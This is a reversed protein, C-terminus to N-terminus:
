QVGYDGKINSGVAHITASDLELEPQYVLEIEKSYQALIKKLSQLRTWSDNLTKFPEGASSPAVSIIINLQQSEPLSKFFLDIIQKHQGNAQLEQQTFNISLQRRYINKSIPLSEEAQNMRSIAESIQQASQEQEREMITKFNLNSNCGSILLTSVFMAVVLTHLGYRKIM